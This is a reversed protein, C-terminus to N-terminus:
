GGFDTWATQIRGFTTMWCLIGYIVAIPNFYDPFCCLLILLAATETGECIGGMHFFSKKGRRTTSLQRKSAIIAYALFSSIPGIFSFILITVCFLNDPNAVGFAFVVGSYIIFDCVIDLFGGFDSPQSFRAVAGDVGDLLRNLCICIAATEYQNIMIMFIAILGFAFGLLTIVNASIGQAALRKGIYNLPPDVFPRVYPDLMLNESIRM